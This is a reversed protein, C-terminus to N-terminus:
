GGAHTHVEWGHIRATGRHGYITPPPQQRTRRDLGGSDTLVWRDISIELRLFHFCGKCVWQYLDELDSKPVDFLLQVNETDQYYWGDTSVFVRSTFHSALGGQQVASLFKDSLDIGIDRSVRQAVIGSSAGESVDIGYAAERVSRGAVGTISYSDGADADSQIGDDVVCCDAVAKRAALSLDGIVLTEKESTLRWVRPHPQYVETLWDGSADTDHRLVLEERPISVSDISMTHGIRSQIM